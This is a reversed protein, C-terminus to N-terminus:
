SGELIDNIIEQYVDKAVLGCVEDIQEGKYFMLVHPISTIRLRHALKPNNDIDLLGLTMKPNNTELDLLLPKLVKCPACWDAYCDVFILSGSQLVEKDFNEDTIVISM